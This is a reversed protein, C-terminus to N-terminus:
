SIWGSLRKVVWTGDKKSLELEDGRAGDQDYASSTRVRVETESAMSIRVIIKQKAEKSAQVANAVEALIVAQPSAEAKGAVKGEEEARLCGVPAGIGAM